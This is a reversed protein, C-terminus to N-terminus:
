AAGSRVLGLAVDYADYVKEFVSDWSMTLAYERAAARMRVQGARDKMLAVSRAIFRREDGAVFGSVGDRVLFKPGGSATVVSPVGSAAAELIVNGFTDTHSPFTFVDMDAYARALAEGRLVGPFVGQRLNARLWELEDGHGVVVIRFDTEGAALLARELDVLVRVSKEPTIRGVYGFVFTADNRTRRAPSYLETDVGRQMLFAPKGTRRVLLDVLEENPALLVNAMQYFRACGALIGRETAGTLSDRMGRPVFSILKDLRRAGFEHLNTHWSAVLPTQSQKAIWAGLIGIDSPGTIHIVDPRFSRVLNRAWARHRQMMLPDFSMDREVKFAAPGRDLELTSVSGETHFDGKPAAHVSLFPLQRRRAFADFQRSTNAVGNVEHFSDSFFAIRPVNGKM